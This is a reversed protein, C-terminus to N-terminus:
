EDNKKLLYTKTEKKIKDEQFNNIENFINKERIENIRYTFLNKKIINYKDQSRHLITKIKDRNGKETKKRQYLEKLINKIKKGKLFLKDGEDMYINDSDVNDKKKDINIGYQKKINEMGKMEQKKNIEEVMDDLKDYFSKKNNILNESDKKYSDLDIFYKNMDSIGYKWNLYKYMAEFTVMKNDFDNKVINIKNVIKKNQKIMKNINKEDISLFKNKRIILPSETKLYDNTNKDIENITKNKYLKNKISNNNISITGKTKIPPLINKLSYNKDTRYIKTKNAQYINNIPNDYNATNMRFGTIFINDYDNDKEINLNNNRSIINKKNRVDKIESVKKDEQNKILQKNKIFKDLSNSSIHNLRSNNYPSNFISNRIQRRNKITGFKMKRRNLKKMLKSKPALINEFIDVDYKIRALSKNILKYDVKKEDGLTLFLNDNAKRHKIRDTNQLEM